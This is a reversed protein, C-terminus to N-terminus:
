GGNNDGQKKTWDYTSQRQEFLTYPENWQQGSSQQGQQAQSQGINTATDWTFGHNGYTNQVDKDDGSM